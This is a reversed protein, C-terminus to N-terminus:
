GPHRRAYRRVVLPHPAKLIVLREIEAPARAAAWWAVLGGWDHGVLIKRGPAVALADEALRDIDYAALDKPKGSAGYGRQDPVHVRFGTLLPVVRRWARGTEPFGHLLVIPKGEAPGFSEVHIM